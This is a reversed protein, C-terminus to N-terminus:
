EARQGCARGTGDAATANNRAEKIVKGDPADPNNEIRLRPAPYVIEPFLKGEPPLPPTELAKRDFYRSWAGNRKREYPPPEGYFEKFAPSASEYWLPRRNEVM